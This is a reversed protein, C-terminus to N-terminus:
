FPEEMAADDATVAAPENLYQKQGNKVGDRAQYYREDSDRKLATIVEKAWPVKAAEAYVWEPADVVDYSGSRNNWEKVPLAGGSTRPASTRGGSSAPRSQPQTVAPAPLAAEVAAKINAALFAISAQIQEDTALDPIGQQVSAFAEHSGYNGDSQSRKYSVTVKLPEVTVEVDSM